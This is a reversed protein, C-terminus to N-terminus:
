EAKKKPLVVYDLAVLTLSTAGVGIWFLIMIDFL